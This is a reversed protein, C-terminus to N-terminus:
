RSLEKSADTIDVLYDSRAMRDGDKTDDSILFIHIVGIPAVLVWGFRRGAHRLDIAIGSWGGAL